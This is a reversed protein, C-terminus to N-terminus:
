SALGEGSVSPRSLPERDSQQSPHSVLQIVLLVTSVVVLPVFYVLVMWTVGSAAGMLHEHIGGRINMVTDYATEAVLLWVLTVALRSGRRLLVIACLAIFAGGVDGLVIERAGGASIPFGDTQASYIQLAVYRFVHVWLLATLASARTLTGLRPLVYWRAALAFVTLSILQAGGQAQQALTM